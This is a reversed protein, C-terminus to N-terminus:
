LLRFGVVSTRDGPTVAVLNYLFDPSTQRYLAFYVFKFKLILCVRRKVTVKMCICRCYDSHFFQVEIVFCLTTYSM